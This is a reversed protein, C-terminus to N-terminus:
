HLRLTKRNVSEHLYMITTLKVLIANTTTLNFIKLTQRVSKADVFYGKEAPKQPRVLIRALPLVIAFLFM